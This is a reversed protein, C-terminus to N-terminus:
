KEPLGDLLAQATKTLDAFYRENKVREGYCKRMGTDGEEQKKNYSDFAKEDKLGSAKYAEFLVESDKLAKNWIETCVPIEKTKGEVQQSVIYVRGGQVSAALIEDPASPGIDQRRTV